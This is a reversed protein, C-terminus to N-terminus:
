AQKVDTTTESPRAFDPTTLLKTQYQSASKNSSPPERGALRPPHSLRNAEFANTFHQVIRKRPFTMSTAATVLTRRETQPM